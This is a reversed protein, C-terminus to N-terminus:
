RTRGLRRVRVERLAIMRDATVRDLRAAATQTPPFPGPVLRGASRARLRAPVGDGDPRLWLALLLAAAVAAAALWRAGRRRTMSPARRRRQMAEDIAARALGRARVAGLPAARETAARLLEAAERTEEETAADEDQM